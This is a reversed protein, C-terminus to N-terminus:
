SGMNRHKPRAWIPLFNKRATTQLFLNETNDRIKNAKLCLMQGKKTKIKQKKRKNKKKHPLRIIKKKKIFGNLNLQGLLDQINQLLCTFFTKSSPKM